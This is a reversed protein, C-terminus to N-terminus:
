INMSNPKPLLLSVTSAPLCKGRRMAVGTPVLSASLNLPALKALTKSMHAKAFILLSIVWTMSPSKLAKQITRYPAAESGDNATDSGLVPDVWMGKGYEATNTTAVGSKPPVMMAGAIGNDALAELDGTIGEKTVNGNMWHWWVYPAYRRPPNAFTDPSIDSAHAAVAAVLAIAATITNKM